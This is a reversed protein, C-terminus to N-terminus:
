APVPLFAADVLLEFPHGDLGQGTEKIRLPATHEQQPDSIGLLHHAEVFVVGGKRLLVAVPELEMESLEDRAVQALRDGNKQGYGEVLKVPVVDALHGGLRAVVRHVDCFPLAGREVEAHPVGRPRQRHVFRYAVDLGTPGRCSRSLPASSTIGLSHLRRASTSKGIASTDRFAASFALGLPYGNMSWRQHARRGSPAQLATASASSKGSGHSGWHGVSNLFAARSTSASTRWGGFVSSSRRLARRQNMPENALQSM